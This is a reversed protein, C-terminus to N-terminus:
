AHGAQLKSTPPTLTQPLHPPPQVLRLNWLIYSSREVQIPGSHPPPCTKDRGAAPQRATALGIALILSLWCGRRLGSNQGLCWDTGPWWWWQGPLKKCSKLFNKKREFHECTIKCKYQDSLFCWACLFHHRHFIKINIEIWDLDSWYSCSWSFYLCNNQWHNYLKWFWKFNRKYILNWM